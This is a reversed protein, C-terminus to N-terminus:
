CSFRKSFHCNEHARFHNNRQLYMVSLHTNRLARKATRPVVWMKRKYVCCETLVWLLMHFHIKQTELHIEYQNPSYWSHNLMASSTVHPPNQLREQLHMVFHSEWGNSAPWTIQREWFGKKHQNITDALHWYISYLRFHTIVNLSSTKNTM